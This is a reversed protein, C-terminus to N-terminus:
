ESQLHTPREGDARDTIKSPLLANIGGFSLPFQAELWGAERRCHPFGILPEKRSAHYLGLGPIVRGKPRKQHAESKTWAFPKAREDYAEIFDDFHICSPSWISLPAPSRYDALISFWIEIPNLWSARPSRSRWASQRATGSSRSGPRGTPRASHRRRRWATSVSGSCRTLRPM